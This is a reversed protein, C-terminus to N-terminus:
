EIYDDYITLELPVDRWPKDMLDEGFFENHGLIIQCGFEEMFDVLQELTTFEKIGEYNDKSARSILFKM